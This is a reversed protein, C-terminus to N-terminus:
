YPTGRNGDRVLPCACESALFEDLSPFAEYEVNLRKTGEVESSLEWFRGGPSREITLPCDEAFRISGGSSKFAGHSQVIVRSATVVLHSAKGFWHLLGGVGVALMGMVTCAGGRELWTLQGIEDSVFHGLCIWGAGFGWLIAAPCITSRWRTRRLFAQSPFVAVGSEKMAKMEPEAM